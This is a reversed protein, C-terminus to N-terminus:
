PNLSCTIRISRSHIVTHTTSYVGLSTSSQISRCGSNRTTRHRYRHTKSSVNCASICLCLCPFLRDGLASVEAEARSKEFRSKDTSSVNTQSTDRDEPGLLDDFMGKKAEDTEEERDKGKATRASLKLRITPRAAPTPPVPSTVKLRVSKYPRIPEPDPIVDEAPDKKSRGRSKDTRGKRSRLPMPTENYGDVEFIGDDVESEDTTIARAKGKRKQKNYIARPASRSSSAVSSERARPTPPSLFDGFPEDSSVFPNSQEQPAHQSERPPCNPCNWYGSPAEDLPPQLCDM